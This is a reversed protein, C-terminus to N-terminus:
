CLSLLKKGKNLAHEAQVNWCLDGQIYFGLAKMLNTLRVSNNGVRLHDILPTKGIWMIETKAENVVM